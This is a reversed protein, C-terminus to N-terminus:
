VRNKNFDVSVSPPAGLKKLRKCCLPMLRYEARPAAAMKFHVGLIVFM